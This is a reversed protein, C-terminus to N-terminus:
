QKFFTNTCFSQHSLIYSGIQLKNEKIVSKLGALIMKKRAEGGLRAGIYISCLREVSKCLKQVNKFFKSCYHVIKNEKIVSKLGALIM